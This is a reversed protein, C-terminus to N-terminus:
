KSLETNIRIFLFLTGEQLLVFTGLSTFVESISFKAILEYAIERSLRFHMIFDINDYRSVINEIYNMIKIHETRQIMGFIPHLMRLDNYDLLM